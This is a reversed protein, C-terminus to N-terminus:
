CVIKIEKIVADLKFDPIIEGFAADVLHYKHSCGLLLGIQLIVM